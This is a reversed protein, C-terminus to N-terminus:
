PSSFNGSYNVLGLSGGAWGFDNSQLMNFGGSVSSAEGSSQSAQGGSITAFRGTIRNGRGVVLGGFSTWDNHMGGVINHSGTRIFGAIPENYGVILNGLSNTTDTAGAGNRIHVNVGSIFLDNGVKSFPQLVAAVPTIQSQLAADAAARAAAEANINSQLTTDAAARAAAEADINNQLTTDAAARAAAEADINSQLQVDAAIRAATEAALDTQLKAVKEELTKVRHAIGHEVGKGQATAGPALYLMVSTLVVAVAAGAMVRARTQAQTLRSELENVRSELSEMKSEELSYTLGPIRPM